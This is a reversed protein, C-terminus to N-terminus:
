RSRQASRLALGCASIMLLIGLPVLGPADDAEGFVAAAVGLAAIAIAVVVNGAGKAALELAVGAVALLVGAGLFDALSWVVEDTFPM